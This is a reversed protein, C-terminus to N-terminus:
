TAVQGRQILEQLGHSPPRDDYQSALQDLIALHLCPSYWHFSRHLLHSRMKSVRAARSPSMHAQSRPWRRQAPNEM